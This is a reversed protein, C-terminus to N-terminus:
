LYRVPLFGRPASSSKSFLTLRFIRSPASVSEERPSTSGTRYEAVTRCEALTSLVYYYEGVDQDTTSATDDRFDNVIDSGGTAQRGRSRTVPREVVPNTNGRAEVANLVAEVIAPIDDKTLNERRGRKAPTRESGENPRKGKRGSRPMTGITKIAPQEPPVPPTTHECKAERPVACANSSNTSGLMAGLLYGKINATSNRRLM